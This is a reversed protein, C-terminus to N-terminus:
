ENINLKDISSFTIITDKLSSVLNSSTNGLEFLLKDKDEDDDDFEMIEMTINGLSGCPVDGAEPNISTLGVYLENKDNDHKLISIFDNGKKDLCTSNLKTSIISDIRTNDYKLAFSAGYLTDLNNVNMDIEIKSCRCKGKDGPTKSVVNLTLATKGTIPFPGSNNKHPPKNMNQVIAKTDASNITGDGNCDTHAIDAGNLLSKNWKDAIQGKYNLNASKRKNGKQGYMLGISLIDAIEVVGNNDADGPWVMCTNDTTSKLAKSNADKDNKDSHNCSLYSLTFSSILLLVLSLKLYSHLHLM